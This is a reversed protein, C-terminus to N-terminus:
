GRKIFHSPWPISLNFVEELTVDVILNCIQSEFGTIQRVGFRSSKFVDM